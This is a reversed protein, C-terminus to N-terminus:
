SKIPIHILSSFTRFFIGRPSFAPTNHVADNLTSEGLHQLGERNAKVTMVKGERSVLFIIEGSCVPSAFFNGKLRELWLNAGNKLDIASAIGGDSISFVFDEKVLSTPVYPANRTITHKIEAKGPLSSPPQIILFRSGRGGSGCSAFFHGGAFYPSSVSRKDLSDPGTEWAINGSEVNVGYCGHSQSSTVVLATGDNTKYITPTSSSPKSGIRDVKWLTEGTKRNLSYLASESEHDHTVFVSDGYVIPSFGSGHQTEYAGFDRKWILKGNHNLCLLDNSKKTTWSVYLFDQDVAPTSSAYSNFKHHPYPTSGFEKRWLIKGTEADICLVYQTSDSPSACTTFIKEEWVVPSSHGSGPLDVKWQFTGEEWALPLNLAAFQGDGNPGRFRNWNQAEISNYSIVVMALLLIRM